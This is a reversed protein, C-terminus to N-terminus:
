ASETVVKKRPVRSKAAKSRQPVQGVLSNIVHSACALGFAGTVFVATGDILNRSDCSHENSKKPCVCRFGQGKDYTLERPWIRPEDSYVAPIGMPGSRPFGHKKRLIGRMERAMPCVFTKSLDAIRLRTPDAKAAAGMSSIVPLGLDRCTTLLHAKASMNDICDVVFDYAGGWPSTLLAASREANYFVEQSEVRAQPNVLCLRERLLVAKSHGINGKLAQLQRNTNTVCVDDFDVLMLHGVASRTLAEAAFSGVGGLGIVLVRAGMLREVAGDGYLRGLRDFRRHLRYSTEEAGGDLIPLACAANSQSNM